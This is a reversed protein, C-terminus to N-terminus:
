KGKRHTRLTKIKRGRNRKWVKSWYWRTGEIGEHYLGFLRFAARQPNVPETVNKSHM